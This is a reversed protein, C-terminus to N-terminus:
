NGFLEHHTGVRALHIEDATHDLYILLFDGQIHCEMFGQYRGQLPHPLYQRPIPTGDALIKLLERLAAIKKPQNQYRKVDKKFKTSPILRKM